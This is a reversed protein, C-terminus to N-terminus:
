LVLLGLLFAKGEGKLLFPMQIKSFSQILGNTKYPNICKFAMRCSWANHSQLIILNIETNDKLKEVSNRLEAVDAVVGWVLAM